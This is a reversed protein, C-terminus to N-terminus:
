LTSPFISLYDDPRTSNEEEKMGQEAGPGVMYTNQPSNKIELCISSRRRVSM